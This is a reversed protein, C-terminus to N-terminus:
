LSPPPVLRRREGPRQRVSGALDGRGPAPLGAALIRAVFGRADVVTGTPPLRRCHPHPSFRARTRLPNEPGPQAPRPPNPEPLTRASASRVPGSPSPRRRAAHGGGIKPDALKGHAM